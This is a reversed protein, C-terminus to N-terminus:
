RNSLIHHANFSDIFWKNLVFILLTALRKLFRTMNVLDTYEILVDKKDRVIKFYLNLLYKSVENCPDGHETLGGVKLDDTTVPFQRLCGDFTKQVCGHTLVCRMGYYLRLVDRIGEKDNIVLFPRVNNSFQFPCWFDVNSNRSVSVINSTIETKCDFLKSFAWNIGRPGGFVPTMMRLTDAALETLKEEWSDTETLKALLKQQTYSEPWKEKLSKLKEAPEALGSTNVEIVKSFAEEFVEKIYAEWAVWARVIGGRIFEQAAPDPKGDKSDLAGNRCCLRGDRPNLVTYNRMMRAMEQQFNQLAISGSPQLGPTAM